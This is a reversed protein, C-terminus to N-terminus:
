AHVPERRLPLALPAARRQRAAIENLIDNVRQGDRQSLLQQARDVLEDDPYQGQDYRAISMSQLHTPLRGEHPAVGVLFQYRELDLFRLSALYHQEEMSFEVSRYDIVESVGMYSSYVPEFKKVRYPDYRSYRKALREATESHSTAGFIQNGLTLLTAAIRDPMQALEQFAVSLWLKHSRSLRAVVEEFDAALLDYNAGTPGIMATLEDIVLSIPQHRYGAGRRRLWEIFSRFTWLMALQLRAVDYLGSFDLLVIQHEAEIAAWDIGARRAGYTARSVPDWVLLGLKTLLAEARQAREREPLVLFQESLHDVAPQTDFTALRPDALMARWTEPQRILAPAETLQLQLAALIIGTATALPHFANWGLVPASALAPDIRRMLDPFRQSVEYLTEDSWRALFPLPMLRGHRAAFDVYRIRPWLQEQVDRRQRMVKDLFNGIMGGTPDWLITPVRRVFDQWALFRGLLRSKGAGRPAVMVLGM